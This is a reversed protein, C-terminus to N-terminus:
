YLVEAYGVKVDVSAYGAHATLPQLYDSIFNAHEYIADQINAFGWEPKDVRNTNRKGMFHYKFRLAIPKVLTQLPYLGEGSTWDPIATVMGLKEGETQFYLMETYAREFTRRESASCSPYDVRLPWKLAESAKTLSAGLADKLKVWTEAQVARVSDLLAM